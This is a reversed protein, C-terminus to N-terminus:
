EELVVQEYLLNVLEALLHARRSELVLRAKALLQRRANMEEAAAVVEQKTLPGGVNFRSALEAYDESGWGDFLSPNTSLVEEVAPNTAADFAETSMGMPPQFLTAISVGLGQALKDLTSNRTQGAGRLVSRVTREDLGSATVLDSQSLGQIAALRRVNHAIVTASRDSPTPAM